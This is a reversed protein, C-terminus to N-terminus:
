QVEGAIAESLRETAVDALAAEVAEETVGLMDAVAAVEVYTGAENVVAYGDRTLTMM